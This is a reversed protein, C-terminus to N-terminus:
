RSKRKKKPSIKKASPRKTAVKKKPKAKRAKKKPPAKKKTPSNLAFDIGKELWIALKQQSNIGEPSIYVFGKMLRGTFDMPRCYPESLAEEYREELVRVMLEDKVIGCFMKDRLMFAVGGFMKKEVIGKQYAISERIRDALQENYAM